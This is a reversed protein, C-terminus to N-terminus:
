GIGDLRCQSFGRLGQKSHLGFVAMPAIVQFRIHCDGGFVKEQMIKEARDVALALLANRIVQAPPLM